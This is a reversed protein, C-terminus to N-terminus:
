AEMKGFQGALRSGKPWGASTAKDEIGPRIAGTPCADFCAGDAICLDRDVRATDTVIAANTPCASQCGNCVICDAALVWAKKPEPTAAAQKKIEAVDVTKVAVPGTDHKAVEVKKVEVAKVQLVVGDATLSTRLADFVKKAYAYEPAVKAEEATPDAVDFAAKLSWPDKVKRSAYAKALAMKGRATKTMPLDGPNPIAQLSPLDAGWIENSLLALDIGGSRADAAMDAAQVGLTKLRKYRIAKGAMRLMPNGAALQFGLSPAPTPQKVKMRYLFEPIPAPLAFCMGPNMLMRFDAQKKYAKLRAYRATGFVSKAEWQLWTGCHYARGGMQQAARLIWASTGWGLPYNLRREDDLGFIFFYVRGDNTLHGEVSLDSHAAKAKVKRLYEFVNAVPVFVEGAVLSPGIRKARIPYLRGAWEDAAAKDDLIEGGHRAVARKVDEAVGNWDSERFCLLVANRGGVPNKKQGTAEGRLAFFEGNHFMIHKVKWKASEALFAGLAKDDKIAVLVPKDTSAEVLKLTIRCLIGTSGGLGLFFELQETDRAVFREGDSGVGEAELVWKGINGNRTSHIGHGDMAVFGGITASLASTPYCPLELGVDNLKKQLDAIVVGADVTVTLDKEDIDIHKNMPTLDIVIGKRKPVAGGLANTAAARPTMPIRRKLCFKVVSEVDDITRCRAVADAKRNVLLDVINPPSGIDTSYVIRDAESWLVNDRGIRAALQELDRVKIAM